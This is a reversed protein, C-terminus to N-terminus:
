RPNLTWSHARLSRCELSRSDLLAYLQPLNAIHGTAHLSHTRKSPTFLHTWKVGTRSGGEFTLTEYASAAKDGLSQLSCRDLRKLFVRDGLRIVAVVDGFHDPDLLLSIAAALARAFQDGQGAQGATM